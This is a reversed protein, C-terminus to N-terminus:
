RAPEKVQHPTVADLGESSPPLPPPFLPFLSLGENQGRGSKRRQGSLPPMFKGGSGASRPSLQLTDLPNIAVGAAAFLLAVTFM